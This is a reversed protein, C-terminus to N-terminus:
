AFPNSGDDRGWADSGGDVAGHALGTFVDFGNRAEIAEPTNHRGHRRQVRGTWFRGPRGCEWKAQVAVSGAAGVVGSTV